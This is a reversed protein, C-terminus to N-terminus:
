PELNTLRRYGVIRGAGVAVTERVMSRLRHFGTPESGPAPSVQADLGVEHGVGRLRLSHSADSVLIV